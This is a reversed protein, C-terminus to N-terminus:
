TSVEILHEGVFLLACAINRTIGLKQFSEVSMKTFLKGDVGHKELLILADRVSKASFNSTLEKAKELRKMLEEITWTDVGFDKFFGVNQM